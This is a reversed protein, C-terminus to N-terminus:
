LELAEMVQDTALRSVMTLLTNLQEADLYAFPDGDPQIGGRDAHFVAAEVTEPTENFQYNEPRNLTYWPLDYNDSYTAYGWIISVSWKSEFRVVFQRRKWDYEGELDYSEFHGWWVRDGVRLHHEDIVYIM